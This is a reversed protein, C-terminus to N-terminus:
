KLTKLELKPNLEVQLNRFRVETPGGSHVQLGIIGNRAIKPDDLDACLQGNLATRVRNGVAVIEYTNWDNTRVFSDGPRTSILARGNEEYIKGWWGQGIDAQCGRMEFAEFPESRFQIGSNAANPTLKVECTFRFDTLVFHSKLFENHKLGVASQGIIEGQEVRWVEPNGDWHSLDKGNFFQAPTDATALLPVQAPQRLYIILDRVEQDSLPLLLGDPMMSLRNQQMTDIESRALTLTENATAVTVATETQSTILGTLMRNDKTEIDWSLYDNPVVANPDVMNQLIYELDSRNSGTLDPGVKGGAGFLTHCQTCVKNFVARGRSADGPQSGGARFIDRYKAIEKQKDADSDRAVGWVKKLLADVEPSKLNRLQQIVDATLDTKPIKGAEVAQLLPQAFSARTALANRADRQHAESLKRYAGILADPTLVDDFQALARIAAGRLGSDALLQRLQAPLAADREALLADLALKRAGADLSRDQLVQYLTALANTNGFTLSLSQAKVRVEADRSAALKAAAADWGLPAVVRRQGKLAINLGNLIETQRPADEVRTLSSAIAALAEATNLAAARRVMFNLINPLKSSEALKLAREVDKAPLPEAAYWAMLPLNHDFADESHATLASLVDWRDEVPMRQMASALYLRVVPSKDERALRAFENMVAPSVNQQECLLQVAWARVYEDDDGLCQQIRESVNRGTVHLAWLWRLKTLGNTALSSASAVAESTKPDKSAREQLLRRAHNGLWDTRTIALKILDDTSRSALDVKPFRPEGFSIKFIRGNSRDHGSENNHHCQNKDYWDILYVGGDPGAEFNVIQSWADNFRVPNPAHTGVFGSGKRALVDMNLCAGHINNMLVKGRFEAPWNTGQYIMLGAHAHGGGLAASKTIDAASWQNGAWHVHDAITKIDDYTHPNFHTGAQRAFRGGQVMHFLHPIVCAEVICQGQADFDVGWPNSTGEAFVEFVHRTPHYRWVGANIRKRDADSAGPKGVNSHTFVGHCGYLWGDPGWKFTNLTEHTDQWGWGDLLIQPPGAPKPEDGDAIPIFMFDPAAGVWVGGFGVEIGSVLNLKEMFVTRRNFKGDGDTDEFVLIRDRGEGAKARMPYTYAEAVWLRGRDDIAFAIPQVVDPEGAFLTAKFGPPLTMRQAAEEPSFGTSLAPEDAGLAVSMLTSFILLYKATLLTPNKKMSDPPQHAPFALLETSRHV